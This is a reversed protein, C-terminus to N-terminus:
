ADPSEMLAESAMAEQPALEAVLLDRLTAM